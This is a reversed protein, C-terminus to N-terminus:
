VQADVVGGGFGMQKGGVHVVGDVQAGHVFV